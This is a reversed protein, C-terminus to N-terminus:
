TNLHETFRKQLAPTYDFTDVQSPPRILSTYIARKAKPAFQPISMNGMPQAASLGEKSLLSAMAAVGLGTGTKRFFQRRTYAENYIDLPNM